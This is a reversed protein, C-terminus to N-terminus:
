LTSLIVTYELVSRSTFRGIAIRDMHAKFYNDTEHRLLIVHKCAQGIVRFFVTHADDHLWKFCSFRGNIKVPQRKYLSFLVHADSHM